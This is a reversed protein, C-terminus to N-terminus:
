LKYAKKALGYALDHAVEYAEDEDIRHDAVLGALFACDCRRAMDHRAPISLFARTDDNFGVTNAFGATEVTRERVASVKRATSSGGLRASVFRRITVLWRRWNAAIPPRM